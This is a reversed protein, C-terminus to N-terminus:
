HFPAAAMDADAVKALSGGGLATYLAVGSSLLARRAQVLQQQASLLDRQADLVELFAASGADFRLLSLRARESQVDLATAAITVQQALWYRASLADNVDRFAAQVTKEYNAVAEDRRAKNLALNSDRRGGDFLPLDIAPALLWAKSTSDFLSSLDTSVGGALATLTIRPFFAARAAAVNAHAARLQHEAAVIDPRNNLLDSPLGARLEGLPSEVGAREPNDLLNPTAGILLTMVQMQAARSQTLQAVLAQAQTQLTQVQTLQLRSSSGVEVRRTFIRLTETRSQLAQRALALRDDLERLVLYNNAVQGILSLTAARSAEGGSLYSELAATQLQKVRGWFDLEWNAVGLGVNYVTGQLPVGLPDIGAPLQARTGGLQGTVSPLTASQQIGYAARAQEVRAAAVRLDRNNQLAQAILAQLQPDVFYDHWDMAAADRDGPETPTDYAAAVPLPPREFPPAGATCGALQMVVFILPSALCRKM